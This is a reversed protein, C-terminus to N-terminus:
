RGTEMTQQIDMVPIEAPVGLFETDFVSLEDEDPDVDSTSYRGRNL